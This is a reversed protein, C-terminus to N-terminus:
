GRSSGARSGRSRPQGRRRHRLRGLYLLAIGGALLLAGAIRVPWQASQASTEQPLVVAAIAAAPSNANPSDARVFLTTRVSRRPLLTFTGKRTGELREIVLRKPGLMEFDRADFLPEVGVRLAALASQDTLTWHITLPKGVRVGQRAPWAVHLSLSPPPTRTRVIGTDSLVRVSVARSAASPDVRVILTNRGSRVGRRQLYNAFRLRFVQKRTAANVLGNVLGLSSTFTVLRGGSRVANLEIQAAAFGNTLASLYSLSRTPRTVSVEVHLRLVYWRRGGQRSGEPLRYRWSAPRASFVRVSDAASGVRFVSVGHVVNASSAAAAQRSGPLLAVTVVIVGLALRAITV